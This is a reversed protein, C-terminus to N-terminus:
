FVNELSLAEKRPIHRVYKMLASAEALASPTDKCLIYQEVRTLTIDINDIEMHDILMAWTKKTGSWKERVKKLSEQANDWDNSVTSDEVRSIDKEMEFSTAYLIRQSIFSIGFIMVALILISLAFKLTHSM